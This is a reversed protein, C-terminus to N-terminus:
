FTFLFALMRWQERSPEKAYDGPHLFIMQFNITKNGLVVQSETAVAEMDTSEALLLYVINAM